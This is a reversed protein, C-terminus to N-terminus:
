FFFRYFPLFVRTKVASGFVLFFYLYTLYLILSMSLIFCDFAFNLRGLSQFAFPSFHLTKSDSFNVFKFVSAKELFFSKYFFKM